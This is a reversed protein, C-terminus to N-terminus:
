LFETLKIEASEQFDRKQLMGYPASPLLAGGYLHLPHITDVRQTSLDKWILTGSLFGSTRVLYSKRQGFIGGHYGSPPDDRNVM